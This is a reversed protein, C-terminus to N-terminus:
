PNMQQDTKLVYEVANIIGQAMDTPKRFSEYFGKAKDGLELYKEYNKHIDIIIDALESEEAYLIGTVNNEINFREGGTIADKMTIFPVGYGMSKLVSLGAQGPSICAIANIFFEKLLPEKYIAGHLFIKENLGNSSIWSKINNFEEGDGIIDLQPINQEILYAKLYNDLLSYINKQKYLTGIFLIRKKKERELVSPIVEVTNHAVFLKKRDFGFTEYKKLPYESYFILADAKKYFFNRIKDWRNVTDFRKKYSASVGISWLILKYDRKIFLLKMLSLWAIDGYGIMVDYEKALRRLNDKHIVFRGFQRVPLFVSKFNYDTGNNKNKNSYSYSVTLDYKEALIRFIPIRYDWLKNYCILVKFKKSMYFKNIKKFYCKVSLKLHILHKVIRESARGDWLEPISGEKWQGSFLKQLAPKIAVPDTGLLENTGIFITEPRETNNRLTMCPIGMVTTEETIGGSDTIVALSKEVLYNFELYGLPEILHLRPNGIGIKNLIKATRPHVPFILQSNGSNNIIEDMLGKLKGEEDVNAPRHLTIVLYEKEKLKLIDWIGPKRFHPKYRLLTDIMTNGVFFIRDAEVGSRELNQNATESTTFFYNTISDTVIRNIEEPMTWDGSRIGGEVHAVKTNLKQSVISCAMTSTVDGVVLVMDSPNELLDKEFRIMIAATQEAQSGGGAQLNVHPEPIGLEEFFSGSMNQDYHQGTHVLRYDINKGEERASDIAHIIPAIKMFNPRAGAIITILM